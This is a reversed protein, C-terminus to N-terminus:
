PADQASEAGAADAMLEWVRPPTLPLELDDRGLADAVANAIAAPASMTNGEGLGKAGLATFPSPSSLHDVRL